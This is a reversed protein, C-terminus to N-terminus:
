RRESLCSNLGCSRKYVCPKAGAAKGKEKGWEASDRVTFQAVPDDIMPQCSRSLPVEVNKVLSADRSRPPCRGGMLRNDFDM